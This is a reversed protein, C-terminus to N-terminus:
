HIINTQISFVENYWPFVKYFMAGRMENHKTEDWISNDPSYNKIKCIESDDLEITDPCCYNLDTLGIPKTLYLHYVSYPIECLPVRTSLLAAYDKMKSPYRLEGSDRNYHTDKRSLVDLIVNARQMGRLASDEATYSNVFTKVVSFTSNGPQRFWHSWSHTMLDEKTYTISHGKQQKTRWKQKILERQTDCMISDGKDDYYLDKPNRFAESWVAGEISIVNDILKPNSCCLAHLRIADWMVLNGLSHAALNIGKNDSSNIISDIFLHLSHSTQFAHYINDSFNLKITTDTPDWLEGLALADDGRWSLGIYNDRYGSWYMRRFVTRNTERAQEESVNFGHIFIFTNKSPNRTEASLPDRVPFGFVQMPSVNYAKSNFKLDTPYDWDDFRETDRTNWLEYFKDIPQFTYLANDLTLLIENSDERCVCLSISNTCFTEKDSNQYVGFLFPLDTTTTPSAFCQFNPPVTLGYTTYAVQRNAQHIIPYTVFTNPRFKKEVVDEDKIYDLIHNSDYPTCPHAMLIGPHNVKLIYKLGPPLPCLDKLLVPFFNEFGHTNESNTISNIDPEIAFWGKFGGHQDKIKHDNEDLVYMSDNNTNLIVKGEIIKLKISKSGIATNGYFLTATVEEYNNSPNIGELYLDKHKSSVSSSTNERFLTSLPIQTDPAWYNGRKEGSTSLNARNRKSSSTITSSPSSTWVRLMGKKFVTYDFYVDPSKRGTRIGFIDKLESDEVKPPTGISISSVGNYAIKVKCNNKSLNGIDVYLDAKIISTENERKGFNAYDPKGSESEDAINTALISDYESTGNPRIPDAVTLDLDVVVVEIKRTVTQEYSDSTVTIMYTSCRFYNGPNAQYIKKTQTSGSKQVLGDISKGNGLYGVITWTPNNAPFQDGQVLQAEITFENGALVYLTQIESDKVEVSNYGDSEGILKFDLAPFERYSEPTEFKGAPSTSSQTGSNYSIAAFMNLFLNGGTQKEQASVTIIGLFAAVSLLFVTTIRRLFSTKSFYSKM